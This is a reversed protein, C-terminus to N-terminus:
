YRRTNSFWSDGRLVLSDAGLKYLSSSLSSAAGERFAIMLYSVLVFM